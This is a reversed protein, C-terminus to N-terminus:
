ILILIVLLDHLWDMLLEDPQAVAKIGDLREGILRSSRSPM